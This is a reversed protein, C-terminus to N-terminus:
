RTDDLAWELPSEADHWAVSWAALGASPPGAPSRLMIPIFLALVDCALVLWGQGPFLRLPSVSRQRGHAQDGTRKMAPQCSGTSAKTM